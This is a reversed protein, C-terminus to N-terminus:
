EVKSPIKVSAYISIWLVGLDLSGECTYGCSIALDKDIM